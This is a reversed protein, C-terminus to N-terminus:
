VKKGLLRTYVSDQSKHGYIAAILFAPITKGNIKLDELRLCMARYENDQLGRSKWVELSTEQYNGGEYGLGEHSGQLRSGDGTMVAISIRELVRNVLWRQAAFDVKRWVKRGIDSHQTIDAWAFGSGNPLEEIQLAVELEPVDLSNIRNLEGGEGTLTVTRKKKEGEKVDGSVEQKIRDYATAQTLLESSIRHEILRASFETVLETFDENDTIDLNAESILERVGSMDALFSGAFSLGLIRHLEEDSSEITLMEKVARQASDVVLLESQPDALRDLLGPEVLTAYREIPPTLVAETVM